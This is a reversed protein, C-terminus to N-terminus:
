PSFGVHGRLEGTEALENGHVYPGHRPTGPSSYCTILHAVARSSEDLDPYVHSPLWERTSAENNLALLLAADESALPRLILSPTRLPTVRDSSINPASM